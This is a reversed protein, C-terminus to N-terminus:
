VINLPVVPAINPSISLLIAGNDGSERIIRQMSIKKYLKM